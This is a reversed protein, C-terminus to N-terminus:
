GTLSRRDFKLGLTKIKYAYYRQYAEVPDSCKFEDPMALVFPTRPGLPVADPVCEECWEIVEQSAHQRGYRRTYEECMALGLECLWDYNATSARAWRSCPHNYHTRKYPAYGPEHQSCLLQATELVMKVVHKDAYQRVCKAPDTHLIFINM